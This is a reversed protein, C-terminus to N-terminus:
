WINLLLFYILDAEDRAQVKEMNYVRGFRSKLLPTVMTVLKDVASVVDVPRKRGTSIEISLDDAFLNFKFIAKRILAARCKRENAKRYWNYEFRGNSSSIM